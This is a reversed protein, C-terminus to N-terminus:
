NTDLLELVLAGAALFASAFGIKKWTFPNGQSEGAARRTWVGLSGCGDAMEGPTEVGSRYIEIGEIEDVGVFSTLQVYEARGLLLGDLYILPTCASGGGGRRNFTVIESTGTRRVQAAARLLELPSPPGAAGARVATPPPTVRAITISPERELVAHVDLVSMQEIDGRTIFRGLGMQKQRQMREYFEALRAVPQRRRGLVIVPALEVVQLGLRIEVAISEGRKVRIFDSTHSAYDLHQTHLQYRDARPLAIHFTGLSDSLVTGHVLGRADMASVWVGTVPRGNAEDLVYGSLAQAHLPFPLLSLLTLLACVSLHPGPM